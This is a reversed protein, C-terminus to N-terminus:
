RQAVRWKCLESDATHYSLVLLMEIRDTKINMPAQKVDVVPRM